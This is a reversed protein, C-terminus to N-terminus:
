GAEGVKVRRAWVPEDDRPIRKPPVYPPRKMNDFQYPLAIGTPKTVGRKYGEKALTSFALQTIDILDGHEELWGDHIAADLMAGRLSPKRGFDALRFLEERTKPGQQYILLAASRASPRKSLTTM